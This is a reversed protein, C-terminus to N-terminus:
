WSAGRRTCQVEPIANIVGYIAVLKHPFSVKKKKKSSQYNKSPVAKRLGINLTNISHTFRLVAKQSFIDTIKFIVLQNTSIPPGGAAKSVGREKESPSAHPLALIM